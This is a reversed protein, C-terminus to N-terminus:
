PPRRLIYSMFCCLMPALSDLLPIKWASRPSDQSGLVVTSPRCGTAVEAALEVYLHPEVVSVVDMIPKSLDAAPHQHCGGTHGVSHSSHNLLYVHVNPDNTENGKMLKKLGVKEYIYTKRKCGSTKGRLESKCLQKKKLLMKVSLLWLRM